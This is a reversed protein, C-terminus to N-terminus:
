ERWGPTLRVSYRPNFVDIDPSGGNEILDKRLNYLTYSDRNTMEQNGVLLKVFDSHPLRMSAVGHQDTYVVEDDPKLINKAGYMAAVRVNRAPKFTHEDIVEVTVRKKFTVECGIFLTSFM